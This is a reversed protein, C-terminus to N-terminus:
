LSKQYFTQITWSFISSLYYKRTEKKINLSITGYNFQIGGIDGGGGRNIAFLQIINLSITEKLLM